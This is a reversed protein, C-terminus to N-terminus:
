IRSFCSINNSFLYEIRRFSLVLSSFLCSFSTTKLLPLFFHSLRKLCVTTKVYVLTQVSVFDGYSLLIKRTISSVLRLIHVFVCLRLKSKNFPICINLTIGRDDFIDCKTITRFIVCPDKALLRVDISTKEIDGIRGKIFIALRFITKLVHM